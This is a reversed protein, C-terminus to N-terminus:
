NDGSGRYKTGYGADIMLSAVDRGDERAVHALIRGFSMSEGFKAGAELPVEFTVSENEIAAKLYERAAIGKIKEARDLTRTEPCWLDLIRIRLTRRVEVEITDGDIVRVVEGELKISLM